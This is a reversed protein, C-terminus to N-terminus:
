LSGPPIARLVLFFVIQICAYVAPLRSKTELRLLRFTFAAVAAILFWALYNQLPITQTQWTWYSLRVATPEMVFDFAVAFLGAFAASAMPSTRIRQSLQIGALIVILWNFAILLPVGILKPGLTKGYTYPGFILGTATGAAELLFTVTITIISWLLVARHHELVVPMMATIGAITLFLPTLRLMVPLTSAFLHGVLGVTFLFALGVTVLTIQSNKLGARKDM